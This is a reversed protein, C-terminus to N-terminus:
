EGSKGNKQKQQAWWEEKVYEKPVILWDDKKSDPILGPVGGAEYQEVFIIAEDIYDLIDQTAVKTLVEKEDEYSYYGIEAYDGTIYCIYTNQGAYTREEKIKAKLVENKYWELESITYFSYLIIGITKSVEIKLPFSDYSYEGNQYLKIYFQWM